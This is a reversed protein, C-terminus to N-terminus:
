FVRDWGDGGPGAEFDWEVKSDPYVRHIAGELDDSDVKAWDGLSIFFENNRKYIQVADKRLQEETWGWSRIENILSKQAIKELWSM